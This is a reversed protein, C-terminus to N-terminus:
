HRWSGSSQGGPVVRRYWPMQPFLPHRPCHPPQMAVVGEELEMERELLERTLLTLEDEAPVQALSPSTM